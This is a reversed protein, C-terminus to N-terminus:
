CDATAIDILDDRPIGSYLSEVLAGRRELVVRQNIYGKGTIEGADISPPEAM